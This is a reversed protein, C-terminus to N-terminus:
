VPRMLVAIPAAHMFIFGLLVLINEFSPKAMVPSLQIHMVTIPARGNRIEPSIGFTSSANKSVADPKVVVPALTRESRSEM